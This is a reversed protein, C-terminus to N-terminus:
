LGGIVIIIIAIKIQFCPFSKTRATEVCRLPIGDGDADIMEEEGNVPAWWFKWMSFSPRFTKKSKVRDQKEINNNLHEGIIHYFYRLLFISLISGYNM